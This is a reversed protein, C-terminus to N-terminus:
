SGSCIGGEPGLLPGYIRLVEPHDEAQLNILVALTKRIKCVEDRTVKNEERIGAITTIYGVYATTAVFGWTVFHRFWPNSMFDTLSRKAANGTM